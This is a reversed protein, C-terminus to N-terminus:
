GGACAPLEMEGLCRIAYGPRWNCIRVRLRSSMRFWSSPWPIIPSRASLKGRGKRRAGDERRAERIRDYVPTLRVSQGSPNDGPIPNLIDERLKAIM